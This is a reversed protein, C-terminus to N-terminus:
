SFIKQFGCFTPGVEENVRREIKVNGICHDGIEMQWFGTQKDHDTGKATKFQDHFSVLLGDFVLVTEKAVPVGGVGRFARVPSNVGGPIVRQARTFAAESRSTKM